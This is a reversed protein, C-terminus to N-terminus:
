KDEGVAKLIADQLDLVVTLCNESISGDSLAKHARTAAELLDPAASILRANAMREADEFTSVGLGNRARVSTVAVADKLVAEPGFIGYGAVHWPGPTHTSKTKSKM